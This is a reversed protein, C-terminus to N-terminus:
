PPLILIVISYTPQHMEMLTLRQIRLCVGLELGVVHSKYYTVHLWIQYEINLGLAICCKYCLIFLTLPRMSM